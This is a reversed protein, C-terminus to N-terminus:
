AMECKKRELAVTDDVRYMCKGVGASSTAAFTGSVVADHIGECTRGLYIKNKVRIVKMVKELQAIPAQVAM